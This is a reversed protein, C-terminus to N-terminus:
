GGCAGAIRRMCSRVRRARRVTTLQHLWFIDAKFRGHAGGERVRRTPAPAQVILADSPSGATDGIVVLYSRNRAPALAWAGAGSPQIQLDSNIEDRRFM